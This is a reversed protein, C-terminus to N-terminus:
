TKAVAESYVARVGAVTHAPRFRAAARAAAATGMRDRTKPNLLLHEVCGIFRSTSTCLYGTEGEVVLEPLSAADWAVVPLGAAMAELVALPCGELASTFAFVAALSLLAQKRAESVYGPFRVRDGFGLKAAYALAQARMPGDGVWVLVAEPVDEAVRRFIRLMGIPDKRPILPGIALVVQKGALGLDRVVEPALLPSAAPVGCHVVRIKAPDIGQGMLQGRVFASDVIVRDAQRLVWRELAATGRAPEFHHCHVVLPATIGYRHRAIIAAPGTYRLAHSVLVDFRHRAWCRGIASPFVLAAVPWRLGRGWRVREVRGLLEPHPRQHSALLVHPDDGRDVLGRLLETSYREGGSPSDPAVGSSPVCLTLDPATPEVVAVPLTTVTARRALRRGRRRGPTNTKM